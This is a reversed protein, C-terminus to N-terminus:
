LKIKNDEYLIRLFKELSIRLSKKQRIIKKAEQIAENKTLRNISQNPKSEEQEKINKLHGKLVAKRYTDCITQIQEIIPEPVRVTRSQYPVKHGRGGVPKNNM